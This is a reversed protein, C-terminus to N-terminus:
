GGHTLTLEHPSLAILLLRRRALELAGQAEHSLAVRRIGPTL